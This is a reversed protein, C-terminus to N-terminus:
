RTPVLHAAPAPVPVVAPPALRASFHVNAGPNGHNTISVLTAREDSGVRGLASITSALADVTHSGGSITYGGDARAIEDVWVNAPVSNGIRAVRLAAVAGSRSYAAAEREFEQYRAVDLMLRRLEERRPANQAVLAEAGSAAASIRDIRLREIAIGILVVAFVIALAIGIERVIDLDIEISLLSITERRRPLLNARIVIRYGATRRVLFRPRLRLDM